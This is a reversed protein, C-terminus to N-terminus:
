GNPRFFKGVKTWFCKLPASVKKCHGHSYKTLQEPTSEFCTHQKCSLFRNYQSSPQLANAKWHCSRLWCIFMGLLKDVTTSNCTSGLKNGTTKLTPRPQPCGYKHIKYCHSIRNWFPVIITWNKSTLVQFSQLSRAVQPMRSVVTEHQCVLTKESIFIESQQEQCMWPKANSAMDSSRNSHFIRGFCWLNQPQNIPLIRTFYKPFLGKRQSSKVQGLALAYRKHSRVAVIVEGKM